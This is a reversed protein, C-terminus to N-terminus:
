DFGPDIIGEGETRGKDRKGIGYGPICDQGDKGKYHDPVKNGGGM